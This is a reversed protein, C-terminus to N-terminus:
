MMIWAERGKLRVPQGTEGITTQSTALAEDYRGLDALIHAKLDLLNIEEPRLKLGEEVAELSKEDEELDQYIDALREWWRWQHSRKGTLKSVLGTVEEQRGERQTWM